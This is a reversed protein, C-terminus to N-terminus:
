LPLSSIHIFMMRSELSEFLIGHVGITQLKEVQEPKRMLASMEFLVSPVHLFEYLVSGGSRQKDTLKQRSHIRVHPTM